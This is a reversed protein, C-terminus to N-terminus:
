ERKLLIQYRYQQLSFPNTGFGRIFWYSLLCCLQMCVLDILIFDGHKLWGKLTKKNM